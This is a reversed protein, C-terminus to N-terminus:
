VKRHFYLNTKVGSVRYERLARRMRAIAEQRSTGHAILKSLVPDYEMPITYGAYIGNDLRIGPGHPYQQDVVLGPSPMFNHFPDEAYIRCEVAHGQAVIDKQTMPLPKGQAVDIQLKVLDVGTIMETVPHEVQIRTNMELFYFNQDKDALFELTGAGEYQVLRALRLATDCIKKRTAASIFPSPAEEIVKQHRRQISCEREFFHVINGHQDGFIQVEIHHPKEILKEMYVTDDKFAQLAEDKARSFASALETESHVARMGKGGGGASAKLLVPYGIRKAITKAEELSEIATEVGPVLPVKAAKALQRCGVKSGMKRIVEPQPGIFVMGAKAVAEAFDANESLFGYGPHIADVKAKKAAKLLKETNLYSQPAPSAGLHYAEDARRVHLAARDADSYVAVPSIGLERCARIIRIAIEGRNAILVKKFSAVKPRSKM